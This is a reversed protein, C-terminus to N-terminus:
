AVDSTDRLRQVDTEEAAAFVAATFAFFVCAPTSILVNDTMAQGAYVLFILRMTLRELPPLRRSHSTVWAIFLLILLTRGIYGGEVQIRLYENHAAWTRMLQVIQSDHPIVFNGAGIGWGFWPAKAAAAEFLPWLLQRGSLDGTDGAMLSFLRLSSFSEGLILLIPLAVMGGAALVMRHARPVAADPALVLSLVVVIAAYATPARAGTLFLIVLNAGLLLAARPSATRLWALLGCYIAPLCVNALFAPHGLAELRAGGSEVFLPRIGALDLITGLVVSVIPVFAIARQITMGWGAPKRCFFVLFPTVSGILSRTMDAWTLDPHTGAVLGMAAIAVFGWAPNFVDRTMGFRVVMLGTLGIEAGKVVAITLGFADPGILDVLTMELSLGTVISWAVWALTLHRYTLVLVGLAVLAAILDPLLAPFLLAIALMALPVGAAWALPPVLSDNRLRLLAM